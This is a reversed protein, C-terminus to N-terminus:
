PSLSWIRPGLCQSPPHITPAFLIKLAAFVRQTNSHHDTCARIHKGLGLPHVAGLTVECTLWPSQTVNTLQLLMGSSTHTGVTPHARQTHPFPLHSSELSETGNETFRFSRWFIFAILKFCLFSFYFGGAFGNEHLACFYM